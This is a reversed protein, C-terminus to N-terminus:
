ANPEGKPKPRPKWLILYASLLTLPLVIVFYRVIVTQSQPDSDPDDVYIVFLNQSLDTGEGDVMESNSPQEATSYRPSQMTAPLKLKRYHSTSWGVGHICSLYTVFTQDDTVVVINEFVLRSRIWGATVVLALALIACGVKRRWGHFFERM